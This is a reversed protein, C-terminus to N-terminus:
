LGVPPNFASSTSFGALRGGIVAAAAGVDPRDAEAGGAGGERVGQGWCCAGVEKPIPQAGLPPSPPVSAACRVLPFEEGEDGNAKRDPPPGYTDDYDGSLIRKAFDAHKM